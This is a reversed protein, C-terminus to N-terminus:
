VGRKVDGKKRCPYGFYIKPGTLCSLPAFFKGLDRKLLKSAASYGGAVGGLGSAISAGWQILETQFGYFLSGEAPFPFEFNRVSNTYHISHNFNVQWLGKFLQSTVLSKKLQCLYVHLPMVPVAFHRSRQGRNYNTFGTHFQFSIFSKM